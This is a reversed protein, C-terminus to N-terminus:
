QEFENTSREIAPKWIRWFKGLWKSPGQRTAPVYAIERPISVEVETGASPRSLVRFKAGIRKARERMGSLGWHGERGFRLLQSDFGIGSDRILVRLGAAAYELEVEISRAKAHRFANTLAERGISYIEDRIIPHLVRPAGEVLVHFDIEDQGEFEKRVESFAQGLDLPANQQTRLGGVANRGEDTVRGMLGLVRNLAPKASSDAPIQDNVVHLQMSASLVGQLLTDHLEQAIRTREALREEFRLKMRSTIRLMRLRFFLLVAIAVLLVSSLRLWWSQWVTPEIEFPVIAEASNWVGESNSAIVRFRYDGSELNTYIAERATTPDTWRQDFGDLKYMFRVRSPVSLSLGAYVITLRQHPAPVRIEQGLSLRRGDASIGEVHVLAPVSTLRASMPDVFSLGRSTSFWVRGRADKVVSKERKVGQASLLGDGLGYERVDGNAVTQHILKAREIQLIHKGTAIWLSGSSDEAIGFIEDRLLEPLSDPTQISGARLFALGNETGIWLVRTEDEFLCNVSGPPLGDQSTYQRWQGKLLVNLGNSTGVWLTEDSGEAIARIANSSLGNATTYITLRGDKLKALGGNITGAWVTGDHSEHVAYVASQPLGDPPTFTKFPYWEGGANRFQTLGGRRGIWLKDNLGDISYVIDGRLAGAAVRALQGDKLWYLGGDRAGFWTRGQSDVFIPGGGDSSADGSIPYTTFVSDRFREIGRTTGVWLNGERDEFLATVANAPQKEDTEISLNGEPNIRALGRSTGVWVNSDRDNTLAVVQAHALTEYIGAEAKGNWRVLGSDTGIWLVHGAVELLANIKRDPLEGAYASVQGQSLYHLGQERTGMWVTGNATQTITIILRPLEPRAELTAFRGNTEKVIGNEFGSLLLAGDKGVCMATVDVEAKNIDLEVSQFVGDRYRLLKPGQLRVWLAGNRDVALGLVPGIPATATNTYEFLLFSFGDFRVLGKETGIWLYGDPTQAFASVPGGPFGQDAGWKDHIYQSIAKNPSLANASGALCLVAFASLLGPGLWRHKKRWKRCINSNRL